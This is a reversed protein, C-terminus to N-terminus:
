PRSPCRGADPKKFITTHMSFCNGKHCEDAPRKGVTYYYLALSRRARGQSAVLPVPHGHYSFDTSSFAVFRGMLPLVRQMCASLNRNWLELHGGHSESWNANLYVFTNVRRHWDRVGPLHNFDAHVQLRGGPATLHVGSGHYAPDPVLEDIGSVAELFRVFPASRMTAFMLRTANGMQKESTIQSKGKENPARFCRSAGKVCGRMVDVEEPLEAAVAELLCSPFVGDIVTHPFPEAARYEHRMKAHVPDNFRIPGLMVMANLVDSPTHFGCIM